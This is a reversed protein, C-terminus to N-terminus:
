LPVPIEARHALPDWRPSYIPSPLRLQLYSIPAQLLGMFFGVGIDKACVCVFLQRM